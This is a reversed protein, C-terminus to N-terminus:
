VDFEALIKGMEGSTPERPFNYPQRVSETYYPRDCAPCGTTVYVRGNKKVQSVDTGYDQIKGESFGMKEAKSLRNVILFRTLQMRRYATVSPRTKKELPTNKLPTFAFLSPLIGENFLHQMCFVMEEETEGLGVILHSYVHYKGFVSVADRLGQWIEEWSCGKKIRCFLDETACDLNISIRDAKVLSRLQEKILPPISLSIPVFPLSSLMFTLENLLHPHSTAQICVREVGELKLVIEELDYPHWVVRSLKEKALSQPCFACSAHCNEDTMMYVTRPLVEIKQSLLGLRVASGSSLFVKM